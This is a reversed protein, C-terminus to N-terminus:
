GSEDCGFQFHAELHISQAVKMWMRLKLLTTITTWQVMLPQRRNAAITAIAKIVNIPTVVQSYNCSEQVPDKKTNWKLFKSLFQLSTFLIRLFLPTRCSKWAPNLVLYSWTLTYEKFYLFETYVEYLVQHLFECEISMLAPVRLWLLFIRFLLFNPFITSLLFYRAESAEFVM